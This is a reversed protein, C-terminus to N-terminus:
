KNINEKEMLIAVLTVIKNWTIEKLNEELNKKNEWKETIRYKGIVGFYEENEEVIAFPTDKVEEFNSKYNNTNEANTQEQTLETSEM